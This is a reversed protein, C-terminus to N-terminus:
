AFARTFIALLVVVLMFWLFVFLYIGGWTQFGPVGPPEDDDPPRDPPASPIM